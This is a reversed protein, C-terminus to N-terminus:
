PRTDRAHDTFTDREEQDQWWFRRGQAQGAARPRRAEAQRAKNVECAAFIAALGAEARAIPCAAPQSM